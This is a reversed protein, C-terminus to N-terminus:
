TSHTTARGCTADNLTVPTNVPRVEEGGVRSM